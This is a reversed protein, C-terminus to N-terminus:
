GGPSQLSAILLARKGRLDVLANPPEMTAHALFPEIYRAELVRAASERAADFSADHRAITGRSALAAVARRELAASSDQAGPGKTWTIRLAERGKRASWFDDAVVAVGAALNRDLVAGPQPGPIRVVQRVGPVRRAQADDVHAVAGDFYPCRAIVATLAGPIAADIGY